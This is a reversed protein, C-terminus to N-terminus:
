QNNFIKIAEARSVGDEKMIQAITRKTKSNKKQTKFYRILRLCRSLHGLGVKENFNTRFFFNM